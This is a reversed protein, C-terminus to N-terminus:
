QNNNNEEQCITASKRTLLARGFATKAFCLLGYCNSQEEKGSKIGPGGSCGGRGVYGSMLHNSMPHDAMCQLPGNVMEIHLFNKKGYCEFGIRKSIGKL